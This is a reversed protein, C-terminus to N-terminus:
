NRSNFNSCIRRLNKQPNLSVTELYNEGVNLTHYEIYENMECKILYSMMDSTVSYNETKLITVNSKLLPSTFAVTLILLVCLSLALIIIFKRKSNKM